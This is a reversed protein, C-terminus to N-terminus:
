QSIVSCVALSARGLRLLIVIDSHALSITLLFESVSFEDGIFLTASNM